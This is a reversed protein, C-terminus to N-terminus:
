PTEHSPGIGVSLTPFLTFSSTKVGYNDRRVWGGVLAISPIVVNSGLPIELGVAPVVGLFIGPNEGNPSNGAHLFLAPDILIRKGDKLPVDYRLFVQHEHWHFPIGFRAGIGFPRDGGELQVFGQVFPYALGAVGGGIEYGRDQENGAEGYWAEVEYGPMTRDCQSACDWTWFWAADDGQPAAVTGRGMWSWGSRTEASRVPGFATCGAALVLMMGIGSRGWWRYSCIGM